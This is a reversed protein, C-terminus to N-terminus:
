QKRIQKVGEITSKDEAIVEQHTPGGEAQQEVDKVQSGGLALVRQVVEAQMLHAVEEALSPDAQLLKKLQLRLAAQADPNDPNAAADQVAEQAAPSAQVKPRLKGWLAKAKEWAEAGLKKGTEEAAQEGIKLLYPLFPALFSTLQAIDNM